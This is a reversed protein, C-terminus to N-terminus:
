PKKWEYSSSASTSTRVSYTNEYKQKAADARKTAETEVDADSMKPNAKKVDARASDLAAAYDEDSMKFYGQETTSGSSRETEVLRGKNKEREKIRAVSEDVKEWNPGGPPMPPNAAPPTSACGALLLLALAFAARTKM